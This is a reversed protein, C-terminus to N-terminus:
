KTDTQKRLIFHEKVKVDGIDVFVEQMPINSCELQEGKANTISKIIAKTTPFNPGIIEIEDNVF